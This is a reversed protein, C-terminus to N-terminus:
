HADAGFACKDTFVLECAAGTTARHSDGIDVASVLDHLEGRRRRNLLGIVGMDAVPAVLAFTGREADGDKDVDIGFTRAELCPTEGILAPREPDFVHRCRDVPDVEPFVLETSFGHLDRAVLPTYGSEFDAVEASDNLSRLWGRRAPG